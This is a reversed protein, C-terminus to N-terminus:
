LCSSPTLRPWTFVKFFLHPLLSGQRTSHQLPYRDRQAQALAEQPHHVVDINFLCRRGHYDASDTVGRQWDPLTQGCYLGLGQRAVM